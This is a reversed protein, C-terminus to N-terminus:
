RSFVPLMSLYLLKGQYQNGQKFISAILSINAGTKLLIKELNTITKGSSVVDDVVIVKKGKLLQADPGDLVLMEPKKGNTVKLVEPSLMYGKISKRCVVYRKKGLKQSLAFLLPVVKVEPGVIYDFDIGKLKEALLSAAVETLEADGLLSISAIKIKPTLSVIPLKRKLGFFDLEYFEM